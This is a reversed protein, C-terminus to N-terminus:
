YFVSQHLHHYLYSLTRSRQNDIFENKEFLSSGGLDCSIFGPLRTMKIMQPIATAKIKISMM